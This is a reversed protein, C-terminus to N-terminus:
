SSVVVVVPVPVSVALGIWEMVGTGVDVGAVVVLGVSGVVVM